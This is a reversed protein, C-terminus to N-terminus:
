MEGVIHSSGLPNVTDVFLMVGSSLNRRPTLSGLHSGEAHADVARGAVPLGAVPAAGALEAVLAGAVGGAGM